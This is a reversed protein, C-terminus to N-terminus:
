EGESGSEVREAIGVLDRMREAQKREVQELYDRKQKSKELGLFFGTCKEGEIVYRARSRVIAGM